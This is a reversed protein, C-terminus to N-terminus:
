PEEFDSDSGQEPSQEEGTGRIKNVISDAIANAMFNSKAGAGASKLMIALRSQVAPSRLVRLLAGAEVAKTVNGTGVGVASGAITPLLGMLDWNGTRNVARELHKELTKLRSYKLNIGTIEPIETAIKDKLGRVIQKITETEVAKLEGYSKRLLANTNQKIAQAQAVTIEDGYQNKFNNAIDDLQGALKTGNVTNLLKNRLEHVPGMADDIKILNNVKPSTAVISDMRDELDTLLNRTKSLGGKSIPVKESLVTKVATKRAITKVSPPVKLSKEVIGEAIKNLTKSGVTSKPGFDAIEPSLVRKLFPLKGILKGGGQLVGGIAVDEAIGGFTNDVQEGFLKQAGRRSAAYGAGAGVLSAGPVPALAGLGAGVTTGAAEIGTRLLEKGAGYLGYLNPNERGWKPVGDIVDSQLVPNKKGSVSRFIQNLEAETPPSDGTLKITRKSVPDTVKYTPM